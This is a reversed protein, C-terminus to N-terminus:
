QEWQMAWNKWKLHRGGWAPMSHAWIVSVLIIFVDIYTSNDSLSIEVQIQVWSHSSKQNKKCQLMCSVGLNTPFWEEGGKESLNKFMNCMQVLKNQPKDHCHFQTLAYVSRSIMVSIHGCGFGNRYHNISALLFTSGQIYSCRHDWELEQLSTNLKLASALAGAGVDTM